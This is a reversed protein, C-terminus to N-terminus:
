SSAYLLHCAPVTALMCVIQMPVGFRVFDAFSYGAAATVMMNTQYSVPTSFSASAAMTLAYLAPRWSIGATECVRVVVPFMLVVVANNAIVMGVLIAVAYIAFLLALPGYPAVLAVLRQTPAHSYTLSIGVYGDLIGLGTRGFPSEYLLFLVCRRM